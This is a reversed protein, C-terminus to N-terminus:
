ASRRRWLCIAALMVTWIGHVPEPVFVVWSTSSSGLGSWGAIWNGDSSISSAFALSTTAPVTIGKSALYDTLLITGVDEQWIIADGFTAPGTGWTGGVITKGDDTIGAGALRSEGGVALNPIEEYSDTITNYRYTTAASFFSGLGLGTVWQGDGSVDFAEQAPNNSNDFILEQVGNVWVSGQRGNGDQWGAVVSGDVSAATARASDGVQATGLDIPGVGETWQFAHADATGQSTWGLGVVSQGDGSIGWGSSVEADIQQGIVPVLGFGTWTGTQSDYRSMEHYNETANFTTGSIYRGDRSIEGEGGIGNGPSVGGIDQSGGAATWRFYHGNGLTSGAGVGNDSIGDILGNAVEYFQGWGTSSLALSLAAATAVLKSMKMLNEGMTRQTALRDNGPM